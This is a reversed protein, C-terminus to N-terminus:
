TKVPLLIDSVSFRIVMEILLDCKGGYIEISINVNVCSVVRTTVYILSQGLVYEYDYINRFRMDM